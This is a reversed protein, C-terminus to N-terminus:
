EHSDEIHHSSLLYTNVVEDAATDREAIFWTSSPSHFWWEKKIGPANNRNFVYDAWDEDTTTEPNPM